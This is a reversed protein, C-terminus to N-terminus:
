VGGIISTQRPGTMVAAAPPPEWVSGVLHRMLREADDGSYSGPNLGYGVGVFEWTGEVSGESAPSKMAESLAASASFQRKGTVWLLAAFAEYGPIQQQEGTERVTTKGLYKMLYAAPNRVQASRGRAVSVANEHAEAGGIDYKEVWLDHVKETLSYDAKGFVAVHLHPYGSKHPEVVRIYETRWGETARNLVRRFKDWGDLLDALVEGPPRPDGNEDRQHATLSLMTVPTPGEGFIRNLEREAGKLKAYMMTRYQETWRHNYPLVRVEDSEREHLVLTANKKNEIYEHLADIGDTVSGIRANNAESVSRYEVEGTLPLEEPDLTEGFTEQGASPRALTANGGDRVSLRRSGLAHTDPATSM